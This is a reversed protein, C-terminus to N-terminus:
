HNDDAAWTLVAVVVAGSLAFMSSLFGIQRAPTLTPAWALILVVAGAAIGVFAVLAAIPGRRM